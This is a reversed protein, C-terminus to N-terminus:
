KDVHLAMRNDADRKHRTDYYEPFHGTSFPELLSLNM